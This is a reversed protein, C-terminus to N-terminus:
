PSVCVAVCIIFFCLWYSSGCFVAAVDVTDVAAVAMSNNFQDETFVVFSSSLFSFPLEFCLLLSHGRCISPWLSLLLQRTTREYGGESSRDDSPLFIAAREIFIVVALFLFFFPPWLFFVPLAHTHTHTQPCTHTRIHAHTLAQTLTRHLLNASRHLM